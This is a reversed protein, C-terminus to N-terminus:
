KDLEEADIVRYGADMLARALVGAGDVLTGSFSGDYVQRVGCTPSRSKLIACEIEEDKIQDLIEAVAGRVSADIDAGDRNILRGNVIEMPVRPIGLGALAEPCVEIVERGRVFAAVAPDFNHGGNYKCNRGLLCASVLIKM